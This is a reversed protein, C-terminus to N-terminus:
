LIGFNQPDKPNLMSVLDSLYKDKARLEADKFQTMLNTYDQYNKADSRKNLRHKAKRVKKILDGIEENWWGRSHSCVSKKPIIEEALKLLKECLNQYLKDVDDEVEMNQLWEGFVVDCQNEWTKWCVNKFDWREWVRNEKKRGIEFTILRHDSKLFVEEQVKWECIMNKIANSVITLDIVKDKRTPSSNNIM